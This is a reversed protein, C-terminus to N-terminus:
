SYFPLLVKIKPHTLIGYIYYVWHVAQCTALARQSPRYNFLLFSVDVYGKKRSYPIFILCIARNGMTIWVM